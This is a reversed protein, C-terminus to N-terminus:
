QVAEILHMRRIYILIRMSIVFNIVYEKEGIGEVNLLPDDVCAKLMDSAAQFYPRVM